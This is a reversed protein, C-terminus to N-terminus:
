EEPKVGAAKADALAARLKDIAPKMDRTLWLDIITPSYDGEPLTEWAKIGDSVAAMLRGAISAPPAAPEDLHREIWLILQDQAHRIEPFVHSRDAEKFSKLLDRINTGAREGASALLIDVAKAIKDLLSSRGPGIPWDTIERIGRLGAELEAIRDTM